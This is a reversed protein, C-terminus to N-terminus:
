SQLLLIDRPQISIFLEEQGALPKWVERDVEMALPPADAPATLPRLLVITSFVDEM